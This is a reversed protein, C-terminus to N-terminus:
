VGARLRLQGHDVVADADIMQMLAAGGAREVDCNGLSAFAACTLFANTMVLTVSRAKWGYTLM